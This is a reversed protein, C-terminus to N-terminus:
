HTTPRSPNVQWAATRSQGLVEQPLVWISKINWAAAEKLTVEGVAAAVAISSEVTPTLTITMAVRGDQWFCEAVTNDVFVCITVTKDTGAILQMTDITGGASIAPTLETAGVSVPYVSGATTAAATAPKYDVYFFTGTAGGQGMIAVGFRAAHQPLVFTVEVESTNGVCLSKVTGPSLTEPGSSSLLKNGRLATQEELPAFTLQRLASNCQVERPLSQTSLCGNFSPEVGDSKCGRTRSTVSSKSSSESVIGSSDHQAWGYLIRRKKVPDWLDKSAAFPGADIRRGVPEHSNPDLLEWHGAAGPLGDIWRGVQMFDVSHVTWKHVHTPLVTAPSPPTGSRKIGWTRWHVDVGVTKLSSVPRFYSTTQGGVPLYQAYGACATDAECRARVAAETIHLQGADTSGKCM